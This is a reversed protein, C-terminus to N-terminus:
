AMLQDTLCSSALAQGVEVPQLLLLKNIYYLLIDVTTDVDLLFMFHLLCKSDSGEQYSEFIPLSVGLFLEFCVVRESCIIQQLYVISFL